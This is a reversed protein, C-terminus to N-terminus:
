RGFRRTLAQLSELRKAQKAEVQQRDEETIAIKGQNILKRLTKAKLEWRRWDPNKHNNGFLTWYTLAEAPSYTGLHLLVRQRVKDGERYSEVLQAYEKGHVTKKRIFAM